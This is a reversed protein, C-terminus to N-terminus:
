EDELFFSPARCSESWTATLKHIRRHPEKTPLSENGDKCNVCVVKACELLLKKIFEDRIAFISDLDVNPKGLDNWAESWLESIKEKTM